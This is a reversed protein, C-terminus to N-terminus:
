CESSYLRYLHSLMMLYTLVISVMNQSGDVVHLLSYFCINFGDYEFNRVPAMEM